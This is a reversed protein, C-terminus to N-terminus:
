KLERIMKVSLFGLLIIIGAIAAWMYASSFFTRTDQATPAKQIKVPGPRIVPLAGKIRDRLLALDYVPQQTERSGIKVFYKKDKELYAIVDRALQEVEITEFRLAPSDGNEVIILLEQAHVDDLPIAITSDNTLMGEVLYDQYRVLRGKKNKAYTVNYVTAKRQFLPPGTPRIKLQDIWQLTDMKIIVRTEKQRPHEKIAVVADTILNYKQVAVSDRYFGVSEINLPATVSDSITMRLHQYDVLPFDVIRFETTSSPNAFRNMTFWDKVGYWTKKDDSGQIMVKKYVDANRVKLHIHSMSQGNPNSFVLRTCCKEVQVKEEIHYEEFESFRYERAADMVYPVETGDADTIRLNAFDATLYKSLGPEIAIHYYGNSAAAPLPAEGSFRQASVLCPGCLLMVAFLYKMMQM